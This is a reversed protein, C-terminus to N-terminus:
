CGASRTIPIAKTAANRVPASMIVYIAAWGRTLRPSGPSPPWSRRAYPLGLGSGVRDQEAAVDVSDRQSGCSSWCHRASTRSCSSGVSTAEGDAEDIEQELEVLRARYTRRAQDDLLEIGPADVTARGDVSVLSLADVSIDPQAVLARLHHLGRLNPLSVEQGAGGVLWLGGPQQHMHITTIVGRVTLSSGM